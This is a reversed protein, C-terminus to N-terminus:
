RRGRSGHCSNHCSTHCTWNYYTDMSGTGTVAEIASKLANFYNQLKTDDIVRGSVLNYTSATPNTIASRESTAMACRHNESYMIYGGGTVTYGPIQADTLYTTGAAPTGWTGSNGGSGQLLFRLRAFRHNTGKAAEFNLTNFITSATIKGSTGASPTIVQNLDSRIETGPDGKTGGLVTPKDTSRIFDFSESKAGAILTRRPNSGSGYSDNAILRITTVFNNAINTSTIPNSLAM